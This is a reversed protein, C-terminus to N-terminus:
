KAREILEKRLKEAEEHSVGPITGEADSHLSGSVAPTSSGATQIRVDSIGLMRQLPGRVIDVNQIRHYPITVYRKSVVGLEKKFGETSLEYRYNEYWLFAWVISTLASVILMGFLMLPMNRLISQILETSKENQFITYVTLSVFVLITLSFFTGVISTVAYVPIARSDLKKM